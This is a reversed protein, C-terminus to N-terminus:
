VIYDTYKGNFSLINSKTVYNHMEYKHLDCSYYAYFFSGRNKVLRVAIIVM